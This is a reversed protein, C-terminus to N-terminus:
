APKKVTVKEGFKTMIQKEILIVHNTTDTLTQTYSYPLYGTQSILFDFPINYTNGQADIHVDTGKIDWVSVGKFTSPGGNILNKIQDSGSSSGSSGSSSGGSSSSSPCLLPNQVPAPFGLVTVNNGNVTKWKSKTSKAKEWTKTKIQVFQGKFSRSQKTAVLTDKGTVTMKLSPGKCTANGTQTIVLEEITTAKAAANQRLAATTQKADTVNQFHTTTVRSFVDIMNQLITVPDPYPSPTTGPTATTTGVPTATTSTATKTASGGTQLSVAAWRAPLHSASPLRLYLVSHVGHGTPSPPGFAFSMTGTGILAIAAALIALTKM